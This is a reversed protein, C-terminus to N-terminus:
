VHFHESAVWRRCRLSRQKGHCCSVKVFSAGGIFAAWCWSPRKWVSVVLLWVTLSLLLFHKVQPRGRPLFSIWNSSLVTKGSGLVCGRTVDCQDSILASWRILHSRWSRVHFLFGVAPQVGHFMLLVPEVDTRHRCWHFWSVRWQLRVAAWFSLFWCKQGGKPEEPSPRRANGTSPSRSGRRSSSPCASSARLRGAPAAWAAAGGEEAAAGREEWGARKGRRGAWRSTTTWSAAAAWPCSAETYLLLVRGDRSSGCMIYFWLFMGAAYRSPSPPTHLSGSSPTSSLQSASQNLGSRSLQPTSSSNMGRM